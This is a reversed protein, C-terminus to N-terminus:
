DNVVYPTEPVPMHLSVNLMNWARIAAVAFTIEAIETDSFHARMWDFEADSPTRQPIANVSEAWALAARERADFLREADRWGALAHLQRAPAGLRLLAAAHMDLCLACGNVQSVRLNLLEGLRPEIGPAAAKSFTLLAHTPKAAVAAYNVRAQHTM